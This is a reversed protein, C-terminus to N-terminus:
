VALILKWCWIFGSLVQSFHRWLAWLQTHVLLHFFVWKKWKTNSDLPYNVRWNDNGRQNKLEKIIILKAMEIM